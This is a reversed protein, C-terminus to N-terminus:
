SKSTTNKSKWPSRIVIEIFVPNQVKAALVSSRVDHARGSFNHFYGSGSASGARAGGSGPARLNGDQSCPLTAVVGLKAAPGMVM